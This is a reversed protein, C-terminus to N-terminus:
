ESVPKGWVEVEVYHNAQDTTNGNSYLRVYRGVTAKGNQYAPVLRGEAKEIYEKDHGIGIGSTNDYDNNYLTTVGTKFVADDAIRVAFDFYVRDGQHFHWVIVAYIESLQGLDIQIWQPGNGLETLYDNQYGKEGDTIMSLKGFVTNPTSSTVPKNASIIAAGVPALFPPRPTLVPEEIHESSYTLPTGAFFPAPLEIAIPANEAPQGGSDAHGTKSDAAAAGVLGATVVGIAILILFRM